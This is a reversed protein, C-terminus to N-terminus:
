RPYSPAAAKPFSETAASIVTGTELNVIRANVKIQSGIEQLSGIIIANAGVLKRLKARTQPDFAIDATLGLESLVRDLQDREVVQFRGNSSAILDFYLQDFFLEQFVGSWPNLNIPRFRACAVAGVDAM